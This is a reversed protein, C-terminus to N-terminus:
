ITKVKNKKNESIYLIYLVIACFVSVCANLIWSQEMTYIMLFSGMFTPFFIRSGFHVLEIVSSFRGRHNVPSHNTIYVSTNVSAIIEGITWIFTSLFFLGIEDIFAMMGFGIIYTITAIFVNLIPSINKTIKLVIPTFFLVIITNMTMVYGFYEPGLTEGFLETLHLPMVFNHQSYVMWVITNVLIFILLFPRSFLAVFVNSKVEKEGERDSNNIKEIDEKTPKSEPVFFMVPIISLITTLADGIFLLRWYNNFLFGALTYSIAFGANMGLYRLSLSAKRNSPDTIDAMIASNAPGSFSRRSRRVRM